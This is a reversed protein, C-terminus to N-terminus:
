LAVASMSDIINEETPAALYPEIKDYSSWGGLTTVIRPSIGEEVLVSCVVDDAKLVDSVSGNHTINDIEPNVLLYLGMRNFM